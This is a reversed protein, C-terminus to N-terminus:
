NIGLKKKVKETIDEGKEYYTLLTKNFIYSFNEEDAVEKITNLIKEQFPYLLEYKKAELQEEILASFDQIRSYIANLEDEKVKRVAASYTSAKSEYDQMKLQYEKVMEQGEAQLENQFDMMAKQATDFGPMMEMVEEPSIHGFKSNQASLLIPTILLLILYVTKKM